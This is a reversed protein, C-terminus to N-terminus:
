SDFTDNFSVLTFLTFCSVDTYAYAVVAIHLHFYHLVYSPSLTNKEVVLGLKIRLPISLQVGKGEGVGQSSLGTHSVHTRKRSNLHKTWDEVDKPTCYRWLRCAKELSWQSKQKRKLFESMYWKRESALLIPSLNAVCVCDSDERERDKFITEKNGSKNKIEKKREEIVSGEHQRKKRKM